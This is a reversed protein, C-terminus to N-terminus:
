NINLWLDGKKPNDPPTKGVTIKSIGDGQVNSQKIKEFVLVLIGIVLFIIAGVKNQIYFLGAIFILLVSISSLLVEIIKTKTLYKKM